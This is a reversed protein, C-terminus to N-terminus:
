GARGALVERRTVEHRYEFMKRLRPRVAIPDVARGLWGLPPAYEIEDRM